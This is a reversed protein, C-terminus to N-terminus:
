GLMQARYPNSCMMCDSFSLWLSSQSPMCFPHAVLTLRHSLCRQPAPSAPLYAICFSQPASALMCPDRSSRKIQINTSGHRTHLSALSTQESCVTSDGSGPCVVVTVEWEDYEQWRKRRGRKIWRKRKRRSGPTNALYAGTRGQTLPLLGNSDQRERFSGSALLFLFLEPQVKRTDEFTIKMSRFLSSPAVFLGVRTLAVHVNSHCHGATPLHILM